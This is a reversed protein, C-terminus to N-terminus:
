RPYRQTYPDLQYAIYKPLLESPLMSPLHESNNRQMQWFEKLGKYFFDEECLVNMKKEIEEASPPPDSSLQARAANEWRDREQQLPKIKERDEPHKLASIRLKTIQDDRFYQRHLWGRSRRFLEYYAEMDTPYNIGEKDCYAAVLYSKMIELKVGGGTFFKLIEDEWHQVSIKLAAQDLTKLHQLGDELYDCVSDSLSQLHRLLAAYDQDTSPSDKGIIGMCWRVYSDLQSKELLGNLPSNNHALVARVLQIQRLCDEFVTKKPAPSDGYCIEAWNMVVPGADKVFRYLNLAATKFDAAPHNIKPEPNYNCCIFLHCNSKKRVYKQAALRWPSLEAPQAAPPFLAMEIRQDFDALWATSFLNDKM